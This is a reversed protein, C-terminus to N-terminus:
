RGNPVEVSEAALAGQRGGHPTRCGIRLICVPVPVAVNRM